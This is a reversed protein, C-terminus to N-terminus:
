PVSRKYWYSGINDLVFTMRVMAGMRAMKYGLKAEVYDSYYFAFLKSLIVLDKHPHEQIQTILRIEDIDTASQVFNFWRREETTPKKRKNM